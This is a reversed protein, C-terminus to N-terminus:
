KEVELPILLKQGPYILATCNSAQEIEWIFRNLNKHHYQKAISTLTEGSSVTYSELVKIEIPKTYNTSKNSIVLISLTTCIVLGVIYSYFLKKTKFM